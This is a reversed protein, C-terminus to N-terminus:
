RQWFYKAELSFSIVASVVDAVVSVVVAFISVGLVPLCYFFM